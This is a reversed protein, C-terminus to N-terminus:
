SLRELVIAHTFNQNDAMAVRVRVRNTRGDAIGFEFSPRSHRLGHRRAASIGIVADIKNQTGETHRRGAKHASTEGLTQSTM